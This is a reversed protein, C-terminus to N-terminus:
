QTMSITLTASGYPTGNEADFQLTIPLVDSERPKTFALQFVRSRQAQEGGVEEITIWGPLDEPPAVALNEDESVVLIRRTIPKDGFAESRLVLQEPVVQLLPVLVRTGHIALPSGNRTVPPDGKVALTFPETEGSTAPLKAVLRFRYTRQEHEGRPEAAPPAILDVAVEGAPDVIETLWPKAEPRELTIIQFEQTAEEGPEQGALRLEDPVVVLAPVSREPGHLVLRLIPVNGAPETFVKVVSEREGYTPLTATLRLPVSEGPGLTTKKLPGALTCSCSADVSVIRVDQDGRNVIQCTVQRRLDQDGEARLKVLAPEIVLEAAQEAGSQKAPAPASDVEDCGACCALSTTLVLFFVGQPFRM